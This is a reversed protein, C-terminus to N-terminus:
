FKRWMNSFAIGGDLGSFTINLSEYMSFYKEKSLHKVLVSELSSRM